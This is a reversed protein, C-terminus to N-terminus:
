ATSDFDLNFTLDLQDGVLTSIGTFDVKVLLDGSNTSDFVGANTITKSATVITVIGNVRYTDGTSDTTVASLTGSVRAETSETFLSTDTVNATGAGTGLAIFKASSTEVTRLKDVVWRKGRDTFINAM